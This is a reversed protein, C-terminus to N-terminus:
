QESMIREFELVPNVPVHESLTVTASHIRATCPFPATYDPGVAPGFEYGCTLGANTSSFASVTFRPIAGEAVPEGDVELRGTGGGHEGPEFRYDLVRLGAIASHVAEPAGTFTVRGGDPHLRLSRDPTTSDCSAHM